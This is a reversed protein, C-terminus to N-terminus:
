ADASIHGSAPTEGSGRTAARLRGAPLKRRTATKPLPLARATTGAATEHSRQWGAAHSGGDTSAVANPSGRGVSAPACSDATRADWSLRIAAAARTDYCAFGRGSAEERKRESGDKRQSAASSGFPLLATDGIHHPALRRVGALGFGDCGVVGGGLSILDLHVVM